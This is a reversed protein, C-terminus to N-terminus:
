RNQQKNKRGREPISGTFTLEIEGFTMKPGDLERIPIIVLFGAQFKQLVFLVVFGCLLLLCAGDMVVVVPLSVYLAAWGLVCMDGFTTFSFLWLSLINLLLSFM